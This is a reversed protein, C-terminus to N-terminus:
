GAALMDMGAKGLGEAVGGITGWATPKRPAGFIAQSTGAGLNGYGLAENGAIQQEGTVGAAGQQKAMENAMMAQTLTSDFARGQQAGLSSLLAQRYGSPLNTMQSTSRLIAARQPAFAQAVTGSNYDTLNRYFPLGNRMRNMYFNTAPTQLSRSIAYQQGMNGTSNTNIDSINGAAKNVQGGTVGGGGGM